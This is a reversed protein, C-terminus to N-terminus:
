KNRRFTQNIVKFIKTSIKFIIKFINPNFQNKLPKKQQTNSSIKRPICITTEEKEISSQDQKAYLSASLPLGSKESRLVINPVARPVFHVGLERYLEVGCKRCIPTDTVDVYLGAVEGCIACKTEGELKYVKM